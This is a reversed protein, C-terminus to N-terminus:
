WTQSKYSSISSSHNIWDKSNEHLTHFGEQESYLYLDPENVDWIVVPSFLM